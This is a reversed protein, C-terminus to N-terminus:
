SCMAMDTSQEQMHIFYLKDCKGQSVQVKSYWEKVIIVSLSIM